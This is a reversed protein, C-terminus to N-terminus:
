EVEFSMTKFNIKIMEFPLLMDQGIVGDFEVKDTFVNKISIKKLFSEKDGIKYPFHNLSYSMIKREGGLGTVPTEKPDSFKDIEEKHKELYGLCLHSENAGYDLAMNLTDPGSNVRVYPCKGSEESFFMNKFTAEQTKQPIFLSGDKKIHVEEMLLMEPIGIIGSVIFDYDPINMIPMVLLIVNEFLIDGVYLTDAVALKAKIAFSPTEVNINTDYITMGMQEAKSMSICSTTAGTDFLFDKSIGGSRVPVTVYHLAPNRSSKIETDGEKHIITPELHTIKGYLEINNKYDETKTSDLLNAYEELLLHSINFVKEYQFLRIYNRIKIQLLNSVITDNLRKKYETLLKDICQLSSESENFVELCLAQYYLFRDESLKTKAANLKKSLKFYNKNNLLNELEQDVKFNTKVEHSCSLALFVLVGLTILLKM